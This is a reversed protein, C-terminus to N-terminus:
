YTSSLSDATSFGEEAEPNNDFVMANPAELDNSNLAHLKGLKEDALQKNRYLKTCTTM